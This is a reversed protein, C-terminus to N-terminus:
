GSYNPHKVIDLNGIANTAWAGSGFSYVTCYYRTGDWLVCVIQGAQVKQLMTRVNGNYGANKWTTGTAYSGQPWLEEKLLTTDEFPRDKLDNWSGSFGEPIEVQVDGNKDPEVGNVM